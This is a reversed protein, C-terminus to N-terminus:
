YGGSEAVEAYSDPATNLGIFDYIVTVLLAPYAVSAIRSFRAAFYDQWSGQRRRVAYSMVLGSLMLFIVVMEHAVKPM